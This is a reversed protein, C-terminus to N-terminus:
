ELYIPKHQALADMGVDTDSSIASEDSFGSQWVQNDDKLYTKDLLIVGIWNSASPDTGAKAEMRIYFRYFQPQGQVGEYLAPTQLVYCQSKIVNRASLFGPVSIIEDYQAPRVEEFLGSTSENFCIALPRSFDPNGLVSNSSPEIRLETTTVTAGSGVAFSINSEATGDDYTVWSVTSENYLPVRDFAIDGAKNTWSVVKKHYYVESIRDTTSEFNDNGLMMYGNFTNPATSTLTTLAGASITEGVTQVNDSGWLETNVTAMTGTIPHYGSVKVVAAFGPAVQGSPGPTVGQQTSSMYWFAGIVVLAILIWEIKIGKAM